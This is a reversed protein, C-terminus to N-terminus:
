KLRRGAEQWHDTLSSPESPKGSRPRFFFRVISFAIAAVILVIVFAIFALALGSIVRKPPAGGEAPAKDTSSDATSSDAADATENAGGTGEGADEAAAASDVSDAAVAAVQSDAPFVGDDAVVIGIAWLTSVALAISLLFSIWVIIISRM